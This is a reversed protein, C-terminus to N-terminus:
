SCLKCLILMQQFLMLSVQLLLLGVMAARQNKPVCHQCLRLHKRGGLIDAFNVGSLSM